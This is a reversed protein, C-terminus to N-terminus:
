EKCIKKLIENKLDELSKATDLDEQILGDEKTLKANKTTEELLSTEEETVKVKEESINEIGKVYRMMVLDPVTTKNMRLIKESDQFRYQIQKATKKVILIVAPGTKTKMLVYQGAKLSDFNVEEKLKELAKNKLTEVYNPSENQLGIAKQKLDYELVLIEYNKNADEWEVFDNINAYLDDIKEKFELGRQIDSESTNPAAILRAREAKTLADNAYERAILPSLAKIEADTYGLEKLESKDKADVVRQNKTIPKKDQIMQEYGIVKDLVTEDALLKQEWENLNDNTSKKKALLALQRRTLAKTKVWNNYEALTISNTIQGLETKISETQPTLSYRKDIYTSTIQVVENLLTNDVDRGFIKKIRKMVSDLFASWASKSNSDQTSPISSLWNQFNENSLSDAVFQYPNSLGTFPNGDTTLEIKEKTDLSNWKRKAAEFVREIDDKFIPDESTSLGEITRRKIEEHIITFEIPTTPGDFNASHYRPDIVTETSPNYDGAMLETNSFTVTELDSALGEELMKKAILKEGETAYESIVVNELVDTLNLKTIEADPSFGYQKALDKYTREDKKGDTGDFPARAKSTFGQIVNRPGIPIDILTKEVYSEIIGYAKKFDNSRIYVANRGDKRKTIYFINKPFKGEEELAKLDKTDFFMGANYLDNLMKNTAMKKKYLALSDAIEKEKHKTIQTFTENIRDVKEKFATPDLLADVNKMAKRTRGELMYSDALDIAGKNIDSQTVFDKNQEALTRVYEGYAEKLSDFDEQSISESDINGESTIKSIKDRLNSLSDRKKVKKDLYDIQEKATPPSGEFAKIESNLLGVEYDITDIGFISNYDSYSTNKLGVNNKATELIGTKRRLADDFAAGELVLDEMANDWALKSQSVQKHMETEPTFKSPDWPNSGVVERGAKWRKSLEKVKAVSKDIKADFQDKTMSYDSEINESPINDRLEELRQIITDQQGYKLATTIHSNLSRDKEDNWGKKDDNKLAAERSLKSEIQTELNQVHPSLYKLPDEYYQNLKKVEVESEENYKRDAEDRSNRRAQVQKAAASDTGGIIAKARTFVDGVKRAGYQAGTEMANVKNNGHTVNSIAGSIPSIFGGMLFGSLFTELGTPSIQKELSGALYNYMGGRVISSDMYQEIAMEEAAGGITEQAIEQLGEGVNAEGYLIGGKTSDKITQLPNKIKNLQRSGWRRAAVTYNSGLKKVSSDFILKKGEATMLKQGAGRFRGSILGDFMLKNTFFITPTNYWAADSGASQSFDLIKRAEAESMTKGPNKEDWDAILRDAVGNQVGGGEMAAEAWTLRINRTDAYMSSIGKLSKQAVNFNQYDHGAKLTKFFDFTNDAPNIFKAGKRTFNQFRSFDKMNDLTKGLNKAMKYGRSLKNVAKAGTYGMRAGIAAIMPATAGTALGGSGVTAIGLAAEIGGLIIEEVALEALIGVTTGSNLVFNTAFGGVGGRTSSGIAFLDEQKKAIESDSQAGFGVMDIAALATLEGWQGAARSLDATWSSNENYLADNDRFPSFGLDEFSSHSQYREKFQNMNGPDNSNFMTAKGFAMADKSVRQDMTAFRQDLMNLVNERTPQQSELRPYGVDTKPLEPSPFALTPSAKFQERYLAERQERYSLPRVPEPMKFQDATISNDDNVVQRSLNGGPLDGPQQFKMDASPVASEPNQPVEEAM